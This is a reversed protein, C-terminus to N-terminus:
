CQRQVLAFNPVLYSSSCLSRGSNQIRRGIQVCHDDSCDVAGGDVAGVVAAVYGHYCARPPRHVLSGIMPLETPELRGTLHGAVIM